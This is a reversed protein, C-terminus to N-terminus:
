LLRVAALVEDPEARVRWDVSASAFRITRDRDVVFTGTAPLSWSGDANQETLDVGFANGFLDKLAPPLDFRLKYARIVDQTEDSLVPFALEHKETISLANSPRQPTVAVFRGGASSLDALRQQWTHLALNCYPCWEGRYFSLVVPGNQLLASLNVPRGTADPLEFDPAKDGVSLGAAAGSKAVAGTERTILDSVDHPVGLEETLAALEQNLTSV